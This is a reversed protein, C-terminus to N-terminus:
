DKVLVKPRDSVALEPPRRGLLGKRRRREDVLRVQLERPPGTPRRLVPRVEKRERAARHPHDEDVLRSRPRALAPARAPPGQIQFVDLDGDLLARGLDDREVRCQALEALDIALQRLEDFPPEEGAQRQLLDRFHGAPGFPRELSM